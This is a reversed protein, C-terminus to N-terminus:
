EDSSVSDPSVDSDQNLNIIEYNDDHFILNSENNIHLSRVNQDMIVLTWPITRLDCSINCNKFLLYSLFIANLRNGVIYYNNGEDRLNLKYTHEVNDFFFILTTQIFTYSCWNYEFHEVTEPVSFFLINDLRSSHENECKYIIMDFEQPPNDLLETKKCSQVIKNNLIIDIENQFGKM